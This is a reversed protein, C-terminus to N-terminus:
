YSGRILTLFIYKYIYTHTQIRLMNGVKLGRRNNASQPHPPPPASSTSSDHRTNEGTRGEGVAQKSTLGARVTTVVVKYLAGPKLEQFVVHSTNVGVSENKIVSSDHVLLVQYWDLDGSAPEWLTQLSNTSGLSFVQIHGVRAPASFVFLFVSYTKM